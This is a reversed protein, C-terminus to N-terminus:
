RTQLRLCPVSLEHYLAAPLGRQCFLQMALLSAFTGHTLFSFLDILGLTAELASSVFGSSEYQWRLYNTALHVPRHQRISAALTSNASHASSSSRGILAQWLAPHHGWRRPHHRLRHHHHHRMGLNCASGIKSTPGVSSRARLIIFPHLPVDEFDLAIAFFDIQQHSAVASHLTAPVPHNRGLIDHDGTSSTTM